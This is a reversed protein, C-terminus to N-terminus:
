KKSAKPTMGKARINDRIAIAEETWELAIKCAPNKKPTDGKSIARFFVERPSGADAHFMLGNKINEGNYNKVGKAKALTGALCRCEGVYTSGDVKGAKLADRLFELENPLKLVESLFDSRAPAVDSWRLNSWRLNGWRLDSWRLNSWRLDSWRLNSWSLDSWRLDSGSLNSGRLNSWRLNSWRLDSWSLDSGSLNSWSLDSWRLDSGSLNSGRLNSGRLNVKQKVAAEVCEKISKFDGSFIVEGNIKKIQINM